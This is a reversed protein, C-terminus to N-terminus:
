ESSEACVPEEYSFWFNQWHYNRPEARVEILNGKFGLDSAIRKGCAKYRDTLELVGAIEPTKVEMQVEVINRVIGDIGKIAKHHLIEV